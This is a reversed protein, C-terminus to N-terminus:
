DGAQVFPDIQAPVVFLSAQAGAQLDVEIDRTGGILPPPVDTNLNTSVSVGASDVTNDLVTQLGVDPAIHSFDDIIIDAKASGALLPFLVIPPILISAWRQRSRRSRVRANM